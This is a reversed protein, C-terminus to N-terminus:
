PPTGGCPLLCSACSRSPCRGHLGRLFPSLRSCLPIVIPPPPRRSSPLSPCCCSRSVSLPPCRRAAFPVAGTTASAPTPPLLSPYPRPLPCAFPLSPSPLSLRSCRPPARWARRATAADEVGGKGGSSPRQPILFMTTLPIRALLAADGVLNPRPRKVLFVPGATTTTTGTM